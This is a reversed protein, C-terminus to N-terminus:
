LGAYDAIGACDAYNPVLNVGLVNFCYGLQVTAPCSPKAEIGTGQWRLPLTQLGKITTLAIRIADQPRTNRVHNMHLPVAYPLLNPM